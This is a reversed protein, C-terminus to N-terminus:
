FAEAFLQFFQNTVLEGVGADPADGDTMYIEGRIVSMGMNVQRQFARHFLLLGGKLRERVRPLEQAMLDRFAKPHEAGRLKLEFGVQGSSEGGLGRLEQLPDAPSAGFLLKTM